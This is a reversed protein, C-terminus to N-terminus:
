DRTAGLHGDHRDPEEFLALLEDLFRRADRDILEAKMKIIAKCEPHNAILQAQGCINNLRNAALHRVAARRTPTSM